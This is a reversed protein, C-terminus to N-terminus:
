SDRGTSPLRRGIAPVFQQLCLDRDLLGRGAIWGAAVGSCVLLTAAADALALWYAAAAALLAGALPLGYGILTARLLKDSGLVIEVRDGADLALDAGLPVEVRRTQTNGTLLGAGCGKGAACRPCVPSNDVEVVARTGQEDSILSLITGSPNMM